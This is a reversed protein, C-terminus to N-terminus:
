TLFIDRCENQRSFPTIMADHTRQISMKAGLRTFDRLHSHTLSKFVKRPRRVDLDLYDMYATYDCGMPIMIDVWM